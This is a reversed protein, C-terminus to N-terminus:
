LSRICAELTSFMDGGQVQGKPFYIYGASKAGIMFRISGVVRNGLKVTWETPRKPHRTTTIAAM